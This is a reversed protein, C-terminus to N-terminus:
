GNCNGDNFKSRKSEPNTPFLPHSHWEGLYNYKHYQKGTRQFFRLLGTAAEEIRRLFFNSQGPHSQITIDIVRFVFDGVREGM